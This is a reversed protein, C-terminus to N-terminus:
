VTGDLWAATVPRWTRLFEKASPVSVKLINSVEKWTTPVAVGAVSALGAVFRSTDGDDQGPIHCVGDALRLSFIIEHPPVHPLLVGGDYSVNRVEVVGPITEGNFRLIEDGRVFLLWAEGFDPGPKNSWEIEKM